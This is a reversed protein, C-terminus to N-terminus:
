AVPTVTLPIDIVFRMGRPQRARLWVAGGHLDVIRKVLALGLGAGPKGEASRGRRYKEFVLAQEEPPIGPGEDEIAFRCLAGERHVSLSVSMGVESYKFANSLVNMLMVRLLVPDGNLAPLDPEVSLHLPHEASLQGGNEIVWLCLEGVDVPAPELAFNHSDIRDQTLCNDFFYSLRASGRLIRLALAQQAPAEKSRLSLLQGATNIVALPSRVEHSLMAIFHRQDTLTQEISTVASELEQTRQAVMQELDEAHEKLHGAMYGMSDALSRLERIPSSKPAQANWDAQTLRIAWDSLVQLPRVLRSAVFLSFLVSALMVAVTTYITNRLVGRLPTNFRSEPLIIAMTLAPGRPLVHTWWRALHRVGDVEMFQNGEPQGSQLIHQGLSSMVPDGSQDIRMRHGDALATVGGSPDHSSMALLEGSAEALFARGGSESALAALFENLQSLSVDATVVGILQGDRSRVPASIGMGIAAYAGQADNIMYRYPAYWSVGDNAIASQYWPRNRADFGVDSRSILTPQRTVADVRLVEMARGDSIRARLMRLARDDGLPPRSGAYYQGDPMGMSIFTLQPQQDIQLMFQRMLVDPQQVMLHGARVQEVNFAVVRQPVDFFSVVKERVRGSVEDALQLAFEEMAVVASRYFLSGSALVIPLLVALLAFTLYSRLAIRRAFM